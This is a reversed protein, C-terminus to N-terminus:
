PVPLTAVRRTPCPRVSEVGPPSPTLDDVLEEADSERTTVELTDPLPNYNLNEVLEPFRERMIELAEEKSVFEVDDVRENSDLQTRLATIQAQSANTRFYVKVVCNAQKEEGGCGALTIASGVAVALRRM